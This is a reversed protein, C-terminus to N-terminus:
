KNIKNKIELLINNLELDSKGSINISDKLTLQNISLKTKILAEIFSNNLPYCSLTISKWSRQPFEYKFEKFVQNNNKGSNLYFNIKNLNAHMKFLQNLNFNCSHIIHLYNLSDGINFYNNFIQTMEDNMPIIFKLFSLKKLTSIAKILKSFEYLENKNKEENKQISDFSIFKTLCYKSKPETYKKNKEKKKFSISVKLDTINPNNNIIIYLITFVHSLTTMSNFNIELKELNNLRKLIILMKKYHEEMFLYTENDYESINDLVLVKISSLIEQFFILFTFLFLHRCKIFKLKKINILNKFIDKEVVIKNEKEYFYKDNFYIIKLYEIHNYHVSILDYLKRLNYYSRDDIILKRFSANDPIFIDKIGYRDHSFVPVGSFNLCKVKTWDFLEFYDKFFNQKKNNNKFFYLLVSDVEKLDYISDKLLDYYAYNIPSNIKLSLGYKLKRIVEIFFNFYMWNIYINADFSLIFTKFTKKSYLYNLYKIIKSILQTFTLVTKTSKNNNIVQQYFSFSQQFIYNLNGKSNYIINQYNKDLFYDDISINLSTSLKKNIKIIEISTNKQIYSFIKLLLSVSNFKNLIKDPKNKNRKSLM